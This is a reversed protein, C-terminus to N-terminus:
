FSSCFLFFYATALVLRSRKREKRRLRWHSEIVNLAPPPGPVAVNGVGEADVPGPARRRLNSKQKNRRRDGPERKRAKKSM